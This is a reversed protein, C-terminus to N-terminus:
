NLKLNNKKRETSNKNKKQTIQKTKYGLARTHSTDLFQNTRPLSTAGARRGVCHSALASDSEQHARPDEQKARNQARKSDLAYFCGSDSVQHKQRKANSTKNKRFFYVSLTFAVSLGNRLCNFLVRTKVKIKNQKGSKKNRFNCAHLINSKRENVCSNREDEEM